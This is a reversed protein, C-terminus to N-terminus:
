YNIVIFEEYICNGFLILFFAVVIVIIIIIVISILIVIEKNNINKYIDKVSSEDDSSKRSKDADIIEAM